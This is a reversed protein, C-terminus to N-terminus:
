KKKIKVIVLKEGLKMHKKEKLRFKYKQKKLLLFSSNLLSLSLMTEQNCIPGM